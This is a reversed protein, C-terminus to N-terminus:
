IRIRPDSRIEFDFKLEFSGVPDESRIAKQITLFRKRSKSNLQKEQEKDKDQEKYQKKKRKIKKSLM